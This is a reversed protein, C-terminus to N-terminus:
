KFFFCFCFCILAVVIVLFLSFCALYLVFNCFVEFFLFKFQNLLMSAEWNNCIAQSTYGSCSISLSFSRYSVKIQRIKSHDWWFSAKDETNLLM